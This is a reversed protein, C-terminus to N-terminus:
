PEFKLTIRTYSLSVTGTRDKDDYYISTVYIHERCGTCGIAVASTSIMTVM